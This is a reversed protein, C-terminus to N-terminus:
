QALQEVILALVAFWTAATVFVLARDFRAQRERLRHRIRDLENM